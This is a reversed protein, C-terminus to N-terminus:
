SRYSSERPVNADNSEQKSCICGIGYTKPPQINTYRPDSAKFNENYSQRL